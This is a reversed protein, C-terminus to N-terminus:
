PKGTETNGDKPLYTRRVKFFVSMYKFFAFLMLVAVLGILCLRVGNPMQPILVIAAMVGYFM